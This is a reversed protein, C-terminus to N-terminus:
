SNKSCFWTNLTYRCTNGLMDSVEHKHTWYPPFIIVSGKKVKILIDLQPFNFIGGEFDDNLHFIVSASRIFTFNVKRDRIFHLSSEDDGVFPGDSHCRTPGHIRRLNWKIETCFRIGKNVDQFIEKMTSVCKNVKEEVDIMEHHQIGNLANTTKTEKTDDGNAPFTYFMEDNADLLDKLFVSDCIVNNGPSYKDSKSLVVTDIINRLADCTDDSMLNEIIYVSKMKYITVSYGCVERVEIDNM